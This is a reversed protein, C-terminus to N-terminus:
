RVSVSPNNGGLNPGPAHCYWSGNGGDLTVEYAAGTALGGGNVNQHPIGDDGHIIINDTGMNMIRLKSGARMTVDRQTPYECQGAGNQMVLVTVQNPATVTGVLEATGVSSAIAFKVSGALTAADTPITLTGKVTATGNTALTVTPQDVVITWDTIPALTADVITPVVTVAGAFTGSGTLTISFEHTTGLETDITTKDVTSDLKPVPAPPVDDDGPPTDDGPMPDPGPGTPSDIVGVCGVLSLGVFLAALSAIRM